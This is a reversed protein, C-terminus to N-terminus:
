VTVSVTVLPKPPKAVCEISIVTSPAGTGPVGTMLALVKHVKIPSSGISKLTVAVSGLPLANVKVHSKPSPFVPVPSLTDCM